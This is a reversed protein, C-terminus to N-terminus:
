NFGSLPHPFTQAERGGVSKNGVGVGETAKLWSPWRYGEIIERFFLPGYVTLQSVVELHEYPKMAELIKALSVKFM